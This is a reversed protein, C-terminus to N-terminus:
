LSETLKQSSLINLSEPGENLLLDLASLYPVFEGHLQGYVPHLYQQWEVAINRSQFRDLDLYDRASDGSLYRTAGFHGCIAALRESQAGQIGLESSRVTQRKLGLWRCMLEIVAIDLDALREWPQNFLSELEPIYTEIYPADSYFQRISGAHKRQWPSRNDILIETILPKNMGKHLVPVTLWQPGKPSKIRNRNRWGHKDYQVDDYYVFVDSRRVQDFFGLWPIYGPQLIAVTMSSKLM